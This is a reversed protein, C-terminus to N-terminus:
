EKSIKLAISGDVTTSADGCTLRKARSPSMISLFHRLGWYSGSMSWLANATSNKWQQNTNITPTGNDASQALTNSLSLAAVPRSGGLRRRANLANACMM